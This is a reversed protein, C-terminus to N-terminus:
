ARMTHIQHLDQAEERLQPQPCEHVPRQAGAAVCAGEESCVRHSVRQETSQHQPRMQTSRSQFGTPVGEPQRRQQTLDIRLWGQTFVSTNEEVRCQLVSKSLMWSGARLVAPAQQRCSEVDEGTVRLLHLAEQANILVGGGVANGQRSQTVGCCVGFGAHVQILMVAVEPPPQGLRHAYKSLCCCIVRQRATAEQKSVRVTLNAASECTHSGSLPGDGGQGHEVRM